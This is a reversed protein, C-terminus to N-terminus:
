RDHPGGGIRFTRLSLDRDGEPERWSVSVVITYLVSGEAASGSAGPGAVPTTTIRWGYQSDLHGTETGARLPRETELSAILSEARVLAGAYDATVDASRFGTAFAQIGAGLAAALIIFAVIVELLTFGSASRRM